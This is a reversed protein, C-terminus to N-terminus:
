PRGNGAILGARNFAVLKWRITMDAQAEAVVTHALWTACDLGPCPELAVPGLAETAVLKAGKMDVAVMHWRLEPTGVDGKSGFEKTFVSIFYRPPTRRAAAPYPEVLLWSMALVQRRCNFGFPLPEDVRAGTGEIHIGKRDVIVSANEVDFQMKALGGFFSGSLLLQVEADFASSGTICPDRGIVRRLKHHANVDRTQRDSALVAARFLACALPVDQATGEGLLYM